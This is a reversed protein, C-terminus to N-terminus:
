EYRTIVLTTQGAKQMSIRINMGKALRLFHERALYPDLVQIQFSEGVDLRALRPDFIHARRKKAIRHAPRAQVGMRKLANTISWKSLGFHSAIRSQTWGKEIYLNEIKKLAASNKAKDTLITRPRPAVGLQRLATAITTKSVGLHEAIQQHRWGKELYLKQLKEPGLHPPPPRKPVDIGDSKLLRAATDHTVRARLAAQTLSVGQKLYLEKLRKIIALKKKDGYGVGGQPRSPVGMRNLATRISAQSFGLHSAIRKQPWGKEVYLNKIKKYVAPKKSEDSLISLPRQLVGLRRLTQGVASQSFGLHLAVKQQSWGKELYLKRVKNPDLRRRKGAAPRKKTSAM